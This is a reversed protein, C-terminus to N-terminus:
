IMAFVRQGELFIFVTCKTSTPSFLGFKIVKRMFYFFSM